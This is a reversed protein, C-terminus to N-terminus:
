TTEYTISFTYAMPAAIATTGDYKWIALGFPITAITLITGDVGGGAFMHGAGNQGGVSPVPITCALYGGGTGANTIQLSGNMIVINGLVRYRSTATYTTITGTESQLTPTYTLWSPNVDGIGIWVGAVKQWVKLAVGDADVQVYIDNNNGDAINPNATGYTAASKTGALAAAEAAANIARRLSPGFVPERSAM